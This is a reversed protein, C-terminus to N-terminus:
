DIKALCIELFKNNIKKKQKTKNNLSKHTVGCFSILFFIVFTGLVQNNVVFVLGLRKETAHSNEIKLYNFCFFKVEPKYCLLQNGTFM